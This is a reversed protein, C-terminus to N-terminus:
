AFAAREVRARGEVQLGNLSRDPITAIKLYGDLYDVLRARAISRKM